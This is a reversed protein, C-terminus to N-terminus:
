KRDPIMSCINIEYIYCVYKLEPSSIKRESRQIQLPFHFKGLM